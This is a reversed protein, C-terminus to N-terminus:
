FECLEFCYNFAQASLISADFLIIEHCNEKQEEVLYNRDLPLAIVYKMM